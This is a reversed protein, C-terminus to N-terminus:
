FFCLVNENKQTKIKFNWKTDRFKLFFFIKYRKMINLLFAFHCFNFLIKKYKIFTKTM